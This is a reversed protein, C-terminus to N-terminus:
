QPRAFTQGRLAGAADIRIEVAGDADTRLVRSGIARYRQLVEPHPFLYRNYAGLSCIVWQPRVAAVLSESSSTRSCHHPAKLVDARWFGASDAASPRTLRQRPRVERPAAAVLSDEGPAGAPGDSRDDNLRDNLRDDSRDNLRDDSRDNLRDDSRDNL